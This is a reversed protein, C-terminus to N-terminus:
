LSVVVCILRPWGRLKECLPDRTNIVILKWDMEGVYFGTCSEHRVCLFGGQDIMGLIGIPKVQIVSGIDFITSGIECADVPDNDGMIKTEENVQFPSEWTQPIAGYNWLYGHFPFINKINRVSDDKIDCVIPNLKTKTSIELKTNTFKPIEVVMNFITKSKDSYLPIDHFPSIIKGDKELCMSM